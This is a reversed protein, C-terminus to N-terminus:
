QGKRWYSSAYKKFRRYTKSLRNWLPVHGCPDIWAVNMSHTISTIPTSASSLEKVVRCLEQGFKLDSFIVKQSKHQLVQIYATNGSSNTASLFINVWNCLKGDRWVPLLWSDKQEPLLAQQTNCPEFDNFTIYPTKLNLLYPPLDATGTNKVEIKIAITQPFSGCFYNAELFVKPRGWYTKKMFNYADSLVVGIIGGIFVWILEYWWSNASEVAGVQNLREFTGAAKTLLEGTNPISGLEITLIKEIFM